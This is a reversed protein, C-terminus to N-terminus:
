LPTECHKQCSALNKAKFEECDAKEAEGTVGKCSDALGEKCGTKCSEIQQADSQCSLASFAGILAFTYFSNSM